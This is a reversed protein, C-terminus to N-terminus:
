CNHLVNWSTASVDFNQAVDSM